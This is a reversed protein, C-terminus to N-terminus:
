THQTNLAQTPCAFVFVCVRARAPHLVSHKHPHIRSGRERRVSERETEREGEMVYALTLRDMNKSMANELFRLPRIAAQDNICLM